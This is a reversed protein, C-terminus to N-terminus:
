ESKIPRRMHVEGDEADSPAVDFGARKYLKLAPENQPDVSLHVYRGTYDYNTSLFEIGAELFGAGLGRNTLDPALALGISGRGDDGFYYEFIGVITSQKDLVAFGDCGAPGTPPDEGRKVSAFYADVDFSPFYEGYAWGDMIELHEVAIPVFRYTATNVLGM